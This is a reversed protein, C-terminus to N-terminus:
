YLRVSDKAIWKYSCGATISFINIIDDAKQTHSFNMDAGITDRKAIRGTADEVHVNFDIDMLTKLDSFSMNAYYWEGTNWSMFKNADTESRRGIKGTIRDYRIEQGKSLEGFVSDKKGVRVAGSIVGIRIDPQKAYNSVVFETGLDLTYLGNKTRVYFPHKDDHVVKFYAQGEIFIERNSAFNDRYDLKSLANLIVISSDPLTIQKVEGRNTSISSYTAEENPMNDMKWKWILGGGVALLLLIVAVRGYYNVMFYKFRNGITRTEENPMQKAFRPSAKFRNLMEKRAEETLDLGSEDKQYTEYFRFLLTEEEQSAKGDLYRQVITKFDYSAM